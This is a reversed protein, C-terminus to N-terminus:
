KLPDERLRVFQHCNSAGAQLIGHMKKLHSVFNDQWKLTKSCYSCDYSPAGRGCEHKRHRCLSNITKFQKGCGEAKCPFDARCKACQVKPTCKTCKSKSKRGRSRFHLGTHLAFVYICIAFISTLNLCHGLVLWPAKLSPPEGLRIKELYTKNNRFNRWNQRCFYLSYKPYIEYRCYWWCFFSATESQGKYGSAM